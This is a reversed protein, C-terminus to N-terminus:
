PILRSILNYNKVNLEKETVLAVKQYGEGCM